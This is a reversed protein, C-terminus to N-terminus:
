IDISLKPFLWTALTKPKTLALLFRGSATAQVHEENLDGVPFSTDDGGRYPMLVGPPRVQWMRLVKESIVAFWGDAGGIMLPVGGSWSNHRLRTFHERGLDWYFLGGDQTAVVLSKEAIPLLSAPKSEHHWLAIESESKSPGGSGTTPLLCLQTRQILWRGDQTRERGLRFVTGSPGHVTWHEETLEHGLRGLQLLEGSGVKLGYLKYGKSTQCWLVLFDQKAFVIPRIRYGAPKKAEEPLSVELM